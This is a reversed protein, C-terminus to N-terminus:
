GGCCHKSKRGSGCACPANRGTETGITTNNNAGGKLYNERAEGARKKVNRRYFIVFLGIGIAAAGAISLVIIL